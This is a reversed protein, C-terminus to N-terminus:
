LGTGSVFPNVPKTQWEKGLMRDVMQIKNHIRKNDHSSSSTFDYRM